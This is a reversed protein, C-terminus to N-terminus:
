TRGPRVGRRVGRLVFIAFMGGFSLHLASPEPVALVEMSMLIKSNSTSYLPIGGNVSSTLGYFFSEVDKNFPHPYIHSDTAYNSGGDLDANSISIKSELSYLITNIFSNTQNGEFSVDMVGKSEGLLFIGGNGQAFASLLSTEIGSLSRHPTPLILLDM